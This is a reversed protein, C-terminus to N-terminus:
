QAYGVAIIQIRTVGDDYSNWLPANSYSRDNNKDGQCIARIYVSRGSAYAGFWFFGAGRVSYETSTYNPTEGSAQHNVCVGYISFSYGSNATFDFRAVGGNIYVAPDTSSISRHRSGTFHWIATTGASARYLTGALLVVPLNSQGNALVRGMNATLSETTSTSTLNDVIGRWTNTPITPKGTVNAWAVSGASNAYNVSLSGADSTDLVRYRGENQYFWGDVQMYMQGSKGAWCFAGKDGWDYAAIGSFGNSSTLTGWGAINGGDLRTAYGSYNAYNVSFNSPNWVYMDSGNNSGWLWTPQGGQGNWYWNSWWTVGNILLHRICPIESGNIVGYTSVYTNGNDLCYYAGERQWFKGDTYIHMDTGNSALGAEASNYAWGWHRTYSSLSSPKWSGGLPHYSHTHGSTAFDSIAKHGGGGLLVYNNNSSSKIFGTSSISTTTNIGAVWSCSSVLTGGGASLTGSFWEWGGNGLHEYRVNGRPVWLGFGSGSSNFYVEIYIYTSDYTTRIDRFVSGNSNVSLEYAYARSWSGKITYSAWNPSWSGGSVGLYFTTISRVMDTTKARAIRYWGTSNVTISTNVLPDVVGSNTAYPVTITNTSGNKIWTLHNGSTGLSTVTESVDTVRYRGENQYYYGDLQMFIQGSKNVFGMDGGDSSSAHSLITYGNASTLTGWGMASVNASSGNWRLYRGDHTHGNVSVRVGNEYLTTANTSGNVHLKYSPSTTGIGVNGNSDITAKITENIRFYLTTGAINLPAWASLANNHGGIVVGNTSSNLYGIVAKDTNNGVTLNFSGWASSLQNTGGITVNGTDTALWAGGYTALGYTPANRSGWGSPSGIAVREYLHIFEGKQSGVATGRITGVKIAHDNTKTFNYQYPTSDNTDKRLYRSDHNHGATAFDSAHKGDLLDADLGSGSGDNGAHWITNDKWTFSNYGIKLGQSTSSSIGYGATMLIYETTSGDTDANIYINSYGQIRGYGISFHDSTGGTFFHTYNGDNPFYIKNTAAMILTGTMTDGTVNIFRNDAETETYYRSDLTSSYNGTHLLTNNRWKVDGGTNLTLGATDSSNNPSIIFQDSPNLAVFWGNTPAGSLGTSGFTIGAWNNAAASIRLGENYNGYSTSKIELPGTLTGGSLPLYPHTHSSIAFDSIAKHGGGGLLMYSDSSGSKVFGIGEIIRNTYLGSQLSSRTSESDQVTGSGPLATTYINWGSTYDSVYSVGKIKQLTIETNANPFYGEIYCNTSDSTFRFKSIYDFRGYLVINIINWGNEVYLEAYFPIFNGGTTVLGIRVSGRPDTSAYYALKYWGAAGTKISTRNLDLGSATNAYNVSMSARHVLYAQGNSSAAWLYTHDNKNNNWNFHQGDVTDADGWKTHSIDYEDLVRKSAGYIDIGQYFRGDTIVNLKSGDYKFMIDAGNVSWDTALTGPVGSWDSTGRSTFGAPYTSSGANGIISIDWTGSAGTGNLTPAYLNYNGSHLISYWNTPQYDTTLNGNRTGRIYFKDQGGYCALQFGYYGQVYLGVATNSPSGTGSAGVTNLIGIGYNQSIVSNWDSDQTPHFIIHNTGMVINGTMTGGALPLYKGIIAKITETDKIGALVDLIEKLNEITGDNDNAKTVLDYAIDLKYELKGLATNLTDTTALAAVTIAKAYGTLKNVYTGDLNGVFTTAYLTGNTTYISKNSYTQPNDAQSTAGILFLKSTSNTSGATNKTDTPVVWIGDGRLFSTHKNVAPAPVLGAKGATSSTAGVMAPIVATTATGSSPTLTTVFTNGDLIGSLTYTTNSNTASITLVGATPTLTINAGAKIDLTKARSGDYTYLDTGETTGTKIKITLLKAVKDATGATAPKGITVKQGSSGSPTVTFSGDTGSAFTYSTNTPIIWTGDERLFRTKSGDNYNPKPILGNRGGTNAATEKLFTNYTTNTFTIESDSQDVITLVNGNVTASKLYNVKISNIIQQVKSISESAENATEQADNALQKTENIAVTVVKNQVPNTSTTSLTSDIINGSMTSLKTKEEPSMLGPQSNTALFENSHFAEKGSSDVILEGRTIPLIEVNDQDKLIVKKAM